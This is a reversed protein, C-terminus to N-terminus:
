EDMRDGGDDGGRVSRGILWGVQRVWERALHRMGRALNDAPGKGQSESGTTHSNGSRSAVPPSAPRALREAQAALSEIGQIWSEAMSAAYMGAHANVHESIQALWTEWANQLATLLTTLPALTASTSPPMIPLIRTIIINTLHSLYQFSTSPHTPPKDTQRPAIFYPLYTLAVNTFETLPMRLRNLLYGDSVTGNTTPRSSGFGFSAGVPRSPQTPASSSPHAGIPVAEILRELKEDLVQIAFSVEPPPILAHITPKLEPHSAILSHLIQLHTSSPLSAAYILNACAIWRSLDSTGLLVGLDAQGHVSQDDRRESSEAVERGQRLRKMTRGAAPTPSVSGREMM